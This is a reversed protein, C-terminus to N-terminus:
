QTISIDSQRLIYPKQTRWANGPLATLNFDSLPIRVVDKLDYALYPETEDTSSIDFGKNNKLYKGTVIRPGNGSVEYVHSDDASNIPILIVKRIAAVDPSYPFAGPKDGTRLYYILSQQVKDLRDKATYCILCLEDKGLINEDGIFKLGKQPIINSQTLLANARTSLLKKIFEELLQRNEEDKPRLPFAGINVEDISQYFRAIQVSSPEGNGPFLIYGGIVEKKLGSSDHESYYIADRYRHMQNIADEPPVDVANRDKGDIRYKADFLYTLKLNDAQEKKTLRLVIDPKQPVTKSILNDINIDRRDNQGQTPNYILEALEIDGKRFLIRSRDGKGLEYRFVGNLEMRSSNDIEIGDGLQKRVIEKMQIYCWIEYLTAIDKTEIYHLGENLSYSQQLILWTRYVNSYYTDHQLLLSEHTLGKFPGVNRFFSHYNLADLEEIGEKIEKRQTDSLDSNEMIKMGLEMHQTSISAVAYKLFRNEYTDNNITPVETRYLHGSDKKFRAYENELLPTFRKIKDARQYIEKDKLRHRPCELIVKVSAVFEERMTKFIQWWILDSTAENVNSIEFSHFTKKLFDISLMRYEAEIASIIERWHEHYNLKTSLVDYSFRFKRREGNELTYNIVIESKGIENGYNLFGSLIQRSKHFRFNEAVKRNPANFSAERVACSKNFEVWIPYDANEFFVATSKEGAVIPTDNLCVEEVGESWCYISYLNPEHVNAVAKNWIEQFKDCDIQMSFDSHEIRLLNM